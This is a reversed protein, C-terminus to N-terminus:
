AAKLKKRLQVVQGQLRQRKQEREILMKAYEAALKEPVLGGHHIDMFEVHVIEALPLGEWKAQALPLGECKVPRDYLEVVVSSLPMMARVTTAGPDNEEIVICVEDAKIKHPDAAVKIGSRRLAAALRKAKRLSEGGDGEPARKRRNVTMQKETM